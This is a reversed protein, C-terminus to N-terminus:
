PNCAGRRPHGSRLVEHAGALNAELLQVSNDPAITGFHSIRSQSASTALAFTSTLATTVVLALAITLILLWWRRRYDRAIAYRSSVNAQRRNGETSRLLSVANTRADIM